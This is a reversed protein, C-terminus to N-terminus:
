GFGDLYEDRLVRTSFNDYSIAQLKTRLKVLDEHNLLVVDPARNEAIANVLEEEFSREDVQVYEVVQFNRDVRGIEQIVRTFSSDDFTGWIVVEDGYPNEALGGFGQYTALLALSGMAIIAFAALLGIQFPRMNQM